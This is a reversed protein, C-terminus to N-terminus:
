EKKLPVFVFGPFEKETIVGNQKKIQFISQKVAAVIIGSDNLQSYLHKPIEEAAASILIRDFPAKEPLGLFGNRSLVEINSDNQLLTKSNVALRKNLEIGYIKGSKIIESILALVYGSGSGIELIKQEQKLELLSLMLATTKPQSITSGDELPIAIDDYSYSVFREPVFDERKVRSFAYVISESYGMAKLGALLESKDM